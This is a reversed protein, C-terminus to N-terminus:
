VIINTNNHISNKCKKTLIGFYFEIVEFSVNTHNYTMGEKDNSSCQLYGHVIYPMLGKYLINNWQKLSEYKKRQHM